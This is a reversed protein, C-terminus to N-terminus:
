QAASRQDGQACGEGQNSAGCHEPSARRGLRGSAREAGFEYACSEVAEGLRGGGVGGLRGGGGVVLVVEGEARFWIDAAPHSNSEKANCLVNRLERVSTENLSTRQKDFIRSPCSIRLGNLGLQTVAQM